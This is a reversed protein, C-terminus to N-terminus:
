WVQEFIVISETRDWIAFLGDATAGPNILYRRESRLQLQGGSIDLPGRDDRASRHHTHGSFTIRASTPSTHGNSRGLVSRLPDPAHSVPAEHIFLADDIVLELELTELVADAHPGLHLERERRHSLADLEHNGFVGLVDWDRLLSACLEAQDVRDFLDGLLVIREVSLLRCHDLARRLLRHEGHVDALIGLRAARIM